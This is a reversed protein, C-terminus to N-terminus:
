RVNIKLSDEIDSIDYLDTKKSEMHSSMKDLRAMITNSQETLSKQISEVSDNFIQLLKNVHNFEDKIISMDMNLNVTVGQSKNDSIPENNNSKDETQDQKNVDEASKDGDDKEDSIDLSPLSITKSEFLVSRFVEILNENLAEASKITDLDEKVFEKLLMNRDLSKLHRALAEQNAPVSCASHEIKEVKKYEVGYDGLGLKKREKPTHDWKAEQPIFGLSGGPMAGSKVFRFVISGMGTMDVEFDFYLDWSKWGMISSSKWEKISNGVPLGGKDHAFLVVPNKRYNKNDIGQYRVIDGDRDVAETTVIREIVRGEYGKQYELGSEECLRKCEDESIKVLKPKTASPMSKTQKNEQDTKLHILEDFTKVGYQLKIENPLSM